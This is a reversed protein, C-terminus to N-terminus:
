QNAQAACDKIIQADAPDLQAFFDERVSETAEIWRAREEDPLQYVNVGYEQLDNLVSIEYDGYLAQMEDELKQGEDLFIQQVDQPMNNFVDLSIYVNSSSGFINAVTINHIADYWKFTLVAFPIMSIGADVTGKQLAPYGDWFELSVPAGGLAKATNAAMPNATWLLKGKWDELTQVAKDTGCYGQLGTSFSAIPMVNFKEALIDNFLNENILKVFKYNAEINSFLFPLQVATFRVDADAQYEIPSEGMEVAGSSLMSFLQAQSCLTGGAYVKITYQGGTREAVNAAMKEAAIAIDTNEPLDISLKLEVPTNQEPASATNPTSSASSDSGTTNTQCGTIIISIIMTIALTLSVVKKM